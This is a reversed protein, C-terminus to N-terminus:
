GNDLGKAQQKAWEAFEEASCPDNSENSAFSSASEGCILLARELEANKAKLDAIEQHNSAESETLCSMCTGCHGCYDYVSGCEECETNIM